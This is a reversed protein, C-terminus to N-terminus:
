KAKGKTSKPEDGEVLVVPVAGAVRAAEAAKAEERAKSQDITSEDLKAPAPEKSGLAAVPAAGRINDEVHRDIDNRFMAPHAPAPGDPDLPLKESGTVPYPRTVFTLLHITPHREVADTEEACGADILEDAVDDVADVVTNHEVLEKGSYVSALLRITKPM